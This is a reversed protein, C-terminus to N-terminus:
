KDVKERYINQFQNNTLKLYRQTTELNKHGLLQSVTLVDVGETLCHVAFSHRFTHPHLKIDPFYKKWAKMRQKLSNATLNFANTQEEESDFYEQLADKTKKTFYIFREERTKAVLIKAKQENMDFDARHLTDIEGVRIGTYFLFYVVARIKLFDEKTVQSLVNLIDDLQKENFSQPLTKTNKLFKPLVIDKKIFKCYAILAVLYGNVTSVSYETQIDRLFATLTESSFDEEKVKALVKEIRLIYNHVTNYASGNIMLYDKFKETEM